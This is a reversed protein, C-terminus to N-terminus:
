DQHAILKLVPLGTARRARSAWDRHFFEEILHPRTMVIVEDADSRRAVETLVQLPDGATVAGEATVGADRLSTLSADLADAAEAEDPTTPTDPPTTAATAGVSPQRPAAAEDRPRAARLDEEVDEAAEHFEGLALDDLVQLLGHEDSGPILLVFRDDANGHLGILEAVDPESLRREMLVVTTYM